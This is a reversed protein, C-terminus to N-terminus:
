PLRVRAASLVLEMRGPKAPPHSHRIPQALGACIESEPTGMGDPSGYHGDVSSLSIGTVVEEELGM